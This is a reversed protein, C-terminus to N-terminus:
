ANRMRDFHIDLWSEIPLRPVDFTRTAGLLNISVGLDRHVVAALNVARDIGDGDLGLLRGPANRRALLDAMSVSGRELDEALLSACALFAETPIADLPRTREFRGTASHRVVLGLARLPSATADEPDQLIDASPQAYSALLCAVDRQIVAPTTQNISRDRVHRSFADVCASRDFIRDQFDNYFWNIVNGKRRALALHVIWWTVPFELHPDNRLVSEALRTPWVDRTRGEGARIDAMGTAEMWYQLAKIMRSGLGLADASALDARFEGNMATVRALGKGLWGERITFTEHRGFEFKRRADNM